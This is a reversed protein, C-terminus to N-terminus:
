TAVQGRELAAELETEKIRARRRARAGCRLEQIRAELADVKALWRAMAECECCDCTELDVGGRFEALEVEKWRDIASM